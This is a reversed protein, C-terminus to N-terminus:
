NGPFHEQFVVGTTPERGRGRLSLLTSSRGPTIYLLKILNRRAYCNFLNMLIPPLPGLLQLAATLAQTLSCILKRCKPILPFRVNGMFQLTGRDPQLCPLPPEQEQEEEDWHPTQLPRSWYLQPVPAPVTIGLSHPPPSAEERHQLTRQQACGAAKAAGRNGLPGQGRPLACSAQSEPQESLFMQQNQKNKEWRLQTLLPSPPAPGARSGVCPLQAQQAGGPPSHQEGVGTRLTGVQTKVPVINPQKSLSPITVCSNQHQTQSPPLSHVWKSIVLVRRQQCVREKPAAPPPVPFALMTKTDSQCM